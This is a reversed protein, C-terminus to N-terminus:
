EVKRLTVKMSATWGGDDDLREHLAVLTRGNDTFEGRCRHQTSQWTWNDGEATLTETATNGDQDFFYTRFQETAPDYGIVELGGVDQDGIRGYAPHMIFQGGPAWQYVDSAVIRLSPAEPTAVTEGDTLWRGIFRNLRDLANRRSNSDSM